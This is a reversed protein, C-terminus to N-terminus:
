IAQGPADLKMTVATTGNWKADIFRDVDRNAAAPAPVFPLQSTLTSV